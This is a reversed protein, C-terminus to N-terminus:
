VEMMRDKDLLLQNAHTKGQEIQQGRGLISMKVDCGGGIVCNDCVISDQLNSGTTVTVNDMIVCNAIKVKEQIVCNNGIVSGSLSTKDAVNTGSGIQCETVQARQGLSAEPHVPSLGHAFAATIDTSRANAEWYAPLSNVRMCIGGSAIYGYCGYRHNDEEGSLTKIHDTTKDDPIFSLLDARPTSSFDDDSSKNKNKTQKSFQKTVLKPIVEGKITTVTKDFSIYDCVWKKIIYLHADQFNTHIRIRPHMRFVKNKVTVAEEIDAEATFLCLRQDDLGVVDKEKKYKTSKPGPVAVDKPDLMNGIFLATLSSRHLRHLETVERVGHDLILDGSVILVDSGTLKDAIHRLSDATGWDKQEQIGVVDIRITLGFREPIKCVESRASDPVVVIADQFGNNQLMKLPYWVMPFNAIPLLCKYKGTTIDTMRSGKGGAMVVAQLEGRKVTM